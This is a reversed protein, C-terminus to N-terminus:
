LSVGAANSPSSVRSIPLSSGVNRSISASNSFANASSAGIASASSTISSTIDSSVTSVSSYTQESVDCLQDLAGCQFHPISALTDLTRIGEDGGPFQFRLGGTQATKIKVQRLHLSAGSCLAHRIRPYMILFIVFITPVLNKYIKITTYRPYSNTEAVFILRGTTPTKNKHQHQLTSSANAIQSQRPSLLFFSAVM